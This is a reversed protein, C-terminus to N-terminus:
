LANTEHLGTLRVLRISFGIESPTCVIGCGHPAAERILTSYTESQSVEFQTSALSSVRAVCLDIWDM